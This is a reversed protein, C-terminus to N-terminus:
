AEAAAARRSFTGEFCEILRETLRDYRFSLPADGAAADAGGEVLRALAAAIEEPRDPEARECAVGAIRLIEEIAGGRRSLALIPRGAALYEYLKGPVQLEPEGSEPGLLLLVDSLRQRALAAAHPLIGPISIAGDVGLQAARARFAAEGDVAGVLVVQLRVFAEPRERRLQALGELLFLGSRVGYVQGYHAVEVFGPSGGGSAAPLRAAADPDFGNPITRVRAIEPYRERFRRELAPTNLVIEAAARVVRQELAADIRAFLPASYRRFPNGIWPDRFDLVLPASFMGALFHAVLHVSPPPSSSLVLDPEDGRLALASRAAAPVVWTLFRDPLTIADTVFDRLRPRAPGPSRAAAGNASEGNGGRRLRAWLRFPDLFPVRVVRAEPPVLALLGEDLREGAPPRGTVVSVRLGRKVLHRVFQLPRHVGGGSLPPFWWTVILVHRPRM